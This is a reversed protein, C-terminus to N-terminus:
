RRPGTWRFFDPWLVIGVAMLVLLAIAAWGQWSLPRRRGDVRGTAFDSVLGGLPILLLFWGRGQAGPSGGMPLSFIVGLVMLMTGIRSYRMGAQQAPTLEVPPLRGRRM